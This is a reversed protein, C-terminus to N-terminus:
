NWASYRSDGGNGYSQYGGYGNGSGGYSGGGRGGRGGGYGRGGGRHSGYRSRGYRGGGHDPYSRKVMDMLKPDVEQNAEKLIAILKKAFKNDDETFYTIATGTTGARGTRGIRHVYDEINSPMEYNIVYKIGKVDIGRSAVDTAVMIPSRGERFQRLTWDRESQGKDGHIALASYGANSIDRALRDAGRKTASFIITKNEAQSMIQKLEDMLLPLKDYASVVKVKQTITHSACLDLSGINVQIFDGLYDLALREVEKPWTASWMLTQRDPRIRDVITRIQDEFGMDLMRDAEDMVLYTVRRLNTIGDNLFDLLRGPTAICIEVGQRLARIQPGRPAGGYCCTTRLNMPGTFKECEQQIQCALERTPALVLAIPGDGRRLRQQASIHVIAPLAFAMTKGSGTQAVGVMNRGSLAMPWGQAQIMTPSAYGQGLLVQLINPSFNAEQFTKIPKPVDNGVITMEHQRRYEEVEEMSRATVEPHEVYFNKKFPVLEMKGWDETPAAAKEGYSSRSSFGGRSRGYRDSHGHDRRSREPSRYSSRGYDRGGRHDRSPSYNTM